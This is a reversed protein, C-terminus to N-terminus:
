QGINEHVRGLKFTIGYSVKEKHALNLWQKCSSSGLYKQTVTAVQLNCDYTTKMLHFLSKLFMLITITGTKIDLDWLHLGLNVILIIFIELLQSLYTEYALVLGLFDNSKAAESINLM